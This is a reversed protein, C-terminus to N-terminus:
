DRPSPAPSQAGAARARDPRRGGAEARGVRCHTREAQHRRPRRLQRRRDGRAQDARQRAVLKGNADEAVFAFYQGNVRLVATVPIVLGPTTKWVIRARVFQSARLSLDPNRVAAKVLISQTQDDVHPSIFNVTTTALQQTGDSSLVQIPLGKKLDGARELPVSVYVELTENQDVTTLLTSTTVQM